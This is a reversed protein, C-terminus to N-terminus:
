QQIELGDWFAPNIEYRRSDRPQQNIIAKLMSINYGVDYVYSVGKGPRLCGLFGYWILVDIVGDWDAEEIGADIFTLYIEEMTLRPLKGLFGYLVNEYRGMIDRLELGIDRVLDRSYNALGSKVDDAEIRAHGRNIAFGVCAMLSNLLGRPRMLSREILYDDSPNGDVESACIECWLQEFPLNDPM